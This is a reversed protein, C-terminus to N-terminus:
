KPGVLHAAGASASDQAAAYLGRILTLSDDVEGDFDFGSEEIAPHQM